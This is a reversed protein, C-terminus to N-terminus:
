TLIAWLWEQSEHPGSACGARVFDSRPVANKTYHDRKRQHTVLHNMDTDNANFIKVGKGHRIIEM